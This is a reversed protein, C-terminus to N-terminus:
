MFVGLNEWSFWCRLFYFFVREVARLARAFSRIGHISLASSVFCVMAYLEVIPYKGEYGNLKESAFLQNKIHRHTYRSQTTHWRGSVSSLLFTKSVKVRTLAKSRVQVMTKHLNTKKGEKMCRQSDVHFFSKKAIFSFHNLLLKM